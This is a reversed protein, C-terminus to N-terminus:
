SNLFCFPSILMGYSRLMDPNSLIRGTHILCQEDSPIGTRDVLVQKLQEIMQDLETQISIKSGNKLQVQVTVPSRENQSGEGNSGM